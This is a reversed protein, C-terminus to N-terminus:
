YSYSSYPCRKPTLAVEFVTVQASGNGYGSDPYSGSNYSSDGFSSGGYFPSGYSPSGYSSGSYPFDSPSGNSGSCPCRGGGTVTELDAVSLEVVDLGHGENQLSADKQNKFFRVFNLKMKIKREQRMFHNMMGYMEYRTISLRYNYYLYFIFTTRLLFM